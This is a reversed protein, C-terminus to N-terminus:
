AKSGEVGDGGDSLESKYDSPTSTYAESEIPSIDIVKAQHPLLSGIGKSINRSQLWPLDIRLNEGDADTLAIRDGYIKPLVKALIFKRTDIRLRARNVSAMDFRVRGDSEVIRDRSVDDAITLIEHAMMEAQIKRADMYRDRYDKVSLWKAFNRPNIGERKLATALSDGESIATLIRDAIDPNWYTKPLRGKLSQKIRDELPEDIALQKTRAM